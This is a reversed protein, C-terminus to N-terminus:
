QTRDRAEPDSGSSGAPTEPLTRDTEDAWIERMFRLLAQQRPPPWQRWFRLLHQEDMTVGVLTLAQGRTAMPLANAM